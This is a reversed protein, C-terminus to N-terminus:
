DHFDGDGLLGDLVADPDYPTDDVPEYDEYSKTADNYRVLPPDGNFASGTIRNKPIQLQMITEDESDDDGMLRKETIFITIACKQVITISGGADSQQVVERKDKMRNTNEQSTIILATHMDKALKELRVMMQEYDGWRAKGGGGKMFLSNVTDIIIADPINERHSLIDRLWKELDEFYSTDPDHKVIFRDGWAEMRRVYIDEYFKKQEDTLHGTDYMNQRTVQTMLIREWHDQAEEYNVYLVTHGEEVWHNMLCKAFTSKGKGSPALVAHVAGKVFGGKDTYGMACNLAKFPTPLFDPLEWLSGVRKAMQTATIVSALPDYGIETEIEKIQETLYSVRDIDAESKHNKRSLLLQLEQSFDIQRRKNARHKLIAIVSEPTALELEMVMGIFVTVGGAGGLADYIDTETELWSRFAIPEIPDLGTKRHFDLLAQYFQSLGTNGHIAGVFEPPLSESFQSIAGEQRFALAFVNYELPINGEEDGVEPM